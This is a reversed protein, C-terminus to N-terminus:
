AQAHRENYRRVARKLAANPKIDADLAALFAAYDRQSLRLVRHEGLVDRAQSNAFDGARERSLAAARRNLAKTKADLKLDSRTATAM